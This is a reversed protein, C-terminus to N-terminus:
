KESTTRAPCAVVIADVVAASCGPVVKSDGFGLYNGMNGFFTAAYALFLRWDDEGVSDRNTTAALLARRRCSCSVAASWTRQNALYSRYTLGVAKPPSLLTITHIHCRPRAFAKCFSVAGGGKVGSEGAPWGSPTSRPM